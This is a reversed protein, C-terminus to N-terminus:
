APTLAMREIAHYSPGSPSLRSEFLTIARVVTTGLVIQDRGALLTPARLADAERVRALTLHPNYEREERDIGAHALRGAVQEEVAALSERGADIGAWVVRPRGREPFVGLGRLHIDFRPTSYPPQLAHQIAPLRREEVNGIFALTLHLRDATLWTIRARPAHQAVAKRLDDILAVAADVVAADIEVGVFLRV